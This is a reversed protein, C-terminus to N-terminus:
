KQITIKDLLMDKLVESKQVWKLKIMFIFTTGQLETDKFQSVLHDNHQFTGETASIFYAEKTPYIILLKKTCIQATTSVTYM